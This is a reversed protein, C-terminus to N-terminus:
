GAGVEELHEAEAPMQTQMGGSTRELSLRFSYSDWRYSAVLLLIPADSADYIVRRMVLIPDYAALKLLPALARPCPAASVTQEGRVAEHGNETLLRVLSGRNLYDENVERGIFEPMHVETHTVPEGGRSRLRTVWLVRGGPKLRLTAALTEDARIWSYNLVRPTTDDQLAREVESGVDSVLPPSQRSLRTSRGRSREVLGALELKEVARRVTPKSVRFRTELEAESPMIGSHDFRGALIEDRLVQFVWSYLPVVRDSMRAGARPGPREGSGNDASVDCRDAPDLM